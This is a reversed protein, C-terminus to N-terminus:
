YDPLEAYKGAGSIAADTMEKLTEVTQAMKQSYIGWRILELKRIMEGGFEWAREEVIANFFADKNGSVQTIYQDVKDSWLSEDFARQRVRSLAEKAAATPGNIENEAEAFMLLIDAYRMMPWNIGTGKASNTGQPNDVFHRSFKGQSINLGVFQEQFNVDIKYLGCTIDRRRDLTDFSFYYSVPMSMYNNGSGFAHTAGTGGAVDIGINWGVDGNGLAFPVEFLIEANVPLIFKHLNMFIQRFDKPLPRDKQAILKASYDRAIQYYKKYDAPREMNMDPKLYYGGRQLALRAIMGLAFERNVQEIGFQCQDAWLMKEEINILDDIVQDLIKNRDERGLFFDIGAKPAQRTNPVDGFFYTLMSYWYARLTYAEGLYHNMLRSTQVDKSNLAESEELGEIAINADRIATYAANWFQRLDGNTSLADLDWIQYRDGASTWGSQREIDTNGMMNNSLRSRFGD